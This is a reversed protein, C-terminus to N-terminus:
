VGSIGFAEPTVIGLTTLAFLILIAAIWSVFAIGVASPWGGPYQLNVVGVWAILLLLPGLLPIWGVFYAVATYVLAGAVATVAARRFGVDRDIVLRAGAHIAATGVLLSVVFVFVASVISERDGSAQLLVDGVPVALELTM